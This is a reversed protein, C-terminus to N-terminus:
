KWNNVGVKSLRSLKQVTELSNIIKWYKKKKLYCEGEEFFLNHPRAMDSNRKGRL